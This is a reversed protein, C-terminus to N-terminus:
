LAMLSLRLAHSGARNCGGTQTPERKNLEVNEDTNWTISTQMLIM